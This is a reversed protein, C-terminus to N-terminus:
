IEILKTFVNDFQFKTFVMKDILNFNVMEVLKHFVFDMLKRPPHDYAMAIRITIYQQRQSERNAGVDMYEARFFVDGCKESDFEKICFSKFINDICFTHTHSLQFGTPVFEM